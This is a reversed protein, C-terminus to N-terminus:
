ATKRALHVFNLAHAFAEKKGAALKEAEDDTGWQEQQYREDLRSVEWLTDPDAYGDLAAFGLVLSGPLTVLDHMGTLEFISLAHLRARMAELSAEPQPAYMVGEVATLPANMTDEAWRLVPDWVQAQRLALEAPQAARYCLLDTGGYDALMDAVAAFQVAVKDVASNASKTVPMTDPKILDQQAEWEAAMAEAMARSPVVLPAKGPTKIPRGDLHVTFGTESAVVDATKWFRKMKWDAM